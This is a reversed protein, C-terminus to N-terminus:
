RMIALACQSMALYHLQNKGSTRMRVLKDLHKLLERGDREQPSPVWLCPFRNALLLDLMHDADRTDTKQRRM